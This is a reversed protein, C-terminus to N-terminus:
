NLYFIRGLTVDCAGGTKVTISAGQQGRIRYPIWFTNQGTFTGSPFYQFMGSYFMYWNGYAVHRFRVEYEYGGSVNVMVQRNPMASVTVAVPERVLDVSWEPYAVLDYGFSTRSVRVNCYPSVITDIGTDSWYSAVQSLNDLNQVNILFDAQNSMVPAEVIINNGEFRAQGFSITTALALLIAIQIRM